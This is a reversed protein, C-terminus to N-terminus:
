LASMDIVIPRHDSAVAEPLVRYDNITAVDGNDQYLCFYDIERNPVGAPFTNQSGIKEFIEFHEALTQISRESRKANFDGALVMPKNLKAAEKIIIDVAEARYEELLSFHTCCFYYNSLEVLLLVRPEDSCPLPVTYYSLPKEKTLVGVGYKGGKYDIAAGFTHHM